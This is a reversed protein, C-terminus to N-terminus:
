CSSLSATAGAQCRWLSSRVGNNKTGAIGKNAKRKKHSGTNAATANDPHADLMPGSPPMRAATTDSLRATPTQMLGIEGWDSSTLQASRPATVPLRPVAVAASKAFVPLMEGPLQTALCPVGSETVVAVTSPRAPLVVTHGQQLIPDRGPAAQLWRADPIAVTLRGTLPLSLLWDSLGVRSTNAADQSQRQALADVVAQRLRSQGAREAAVQWQLATTDAGPGANRLLWESLREGPVVASRVAPGPEAFAWQPSVPGLAVCVAAARAICSRAFRM